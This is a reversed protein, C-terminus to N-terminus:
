RRAGGEFAPPPAFGSFRNEREIYSGPSPGSRVARDPSYGENGVVSVLGIGPAVDADMQVWGGGLGASPYYLRNGHVYIRDIRGAAGGASPGLWLNYGGPSSLQNGCVYHDVAPLSPGDGHIRLMRNDVSHIEGNIFTFGQLAIARIGAHAPATNRVSTNAFIVHRMNFLFAGYGPRPARITSNIVAIREPIANGSAQSIMGQEIVVDDLLVDDSSAGITLGHEGCQDNGCMTGRHRYILNGGTLRVRQGNIVVPGLFNTERSAVIDVDDANVVLEGGYTGDNVVIRRGNRLASTLERSNAVVRESTTRPDAPYSTPFPSTCSGHLAQIRAANSEVAPAVPQAHAPASALLPLAVLSVLAAVTLRMEIESFSVL